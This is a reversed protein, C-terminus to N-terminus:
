PVFYKNREPSGVLFLRSSVKIYGPWLQFVWSRKFELPICCDVLNEKLDENGSLLNISASLKWLCSTVCQAAVSDWQNCQWDSKARAVSGRWILVNWKFDKDILRKRGNPCTNDNWFVYICTFIPIDGVYEKAKFFPM